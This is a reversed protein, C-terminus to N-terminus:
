IKSGIRAQRTQKTALEVGVGNPDIAIGVTVSAVFKLNLFYSLQKQQKMHM